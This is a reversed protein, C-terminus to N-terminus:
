NVSMANGYAFGDHTFIRDNQVEYVTTYHAYKKKMETSDDGVRRAYAADKCNRKFYIEAYFTRLIEPARVDCCLAGKRIPFRPVACIM